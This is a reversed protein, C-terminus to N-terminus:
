SFRMLPIQTMPYYNAERSRNEWGDGGVWKMERGNIIGTRMEDMRSWVTHWEIGNIWKSLTGIAIWPLYQKDLCFIDEMVQINPYYDFHERWGGCQWSHKYMSKWIYMQNKEDWYTFFNYRRFSFEPDVFTGRPGQWVDETWVSPLNDWDKIIYRGERGENYIDFMNDRKVGAADIDHVSFGDPSTLCKVSVFGYNGPNEKVKQAWGEWYNEKKEEELIRKEEHYDDYFDGIEQVAKEETHSAISGMDLEIAMKSLRKHWSHTPKPKTPYKKTKKQPIKKDRKFRGEGRGKEWVKSTEKIEESIKREGIIEEGAEEEIYAYGCNEWYMTLDIDVGDMVKDAWSNGTRKHRMVGVEDVQFQSSDSFSMSKVREKISKNSSRRCVIL